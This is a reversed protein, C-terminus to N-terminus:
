AKLSARRDATRRRRGAKRALTEVDAGDPPSLAFGVSPSLRLVHGQLFFTDCLTEDIQRALDNAARRDSMGRALLMFADGDLVLLVDDKRAVNKVRRAAAQRLEEGVARGLADRIHGIDDLDIHFAAYVEGGTAESRLAVPREGEHFAQAILEGAHLAFQAEDDAWVCHQRAESAILLGATKGQRRVPAILVAKIGAEHFYECALAARPDRDVNTAVFAHEDLMVKHLLPHFSTAFLADPPQEILSQRRDDYAMLCRTAAPAEDFEWYACRHTGLARASSKLITKLASAVNPHPHRSLRFLRNLYHLQRKKERAANRRRHCPDTIDRGCLLMGDGNAPPALHRLRADLCRWSGNGARLRLVLAPTSEGAAQALAAQLATRDQPHTLEFLDIEGPMDADCGLLERFSRNAYAIGGEPGCLLAPQPLQELLAFRTDDAAIRHPVPHLIWVTCDADDLNDIRRITRQFALPRGNKGALHIRDENADSALLLSEVPQGALDDAEVGLQDALRANVRWITGGRLFLLGVASVDSAESLAQWEAPFLFPSIDAPAAINDAPM